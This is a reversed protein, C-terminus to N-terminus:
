GTPGFRETRVRDEPHGQEVLATAVAEVFGTPGCVFVEPAEDAAIALRQVDAATLRRGAGGDPTRRSCHLDVRVGDRELAALEDRYYVRDPDTVGYLLRFPRTSGTRERTRLMAMLPAVGSGGAILQVPATGTDPRWVLWGGVPGRVEVADGIALDRVLYPSVEGDAFEEVTIQVPRAGAASSLSYSRQATYGDEATLRVDVHQGALAPGLDPADLLLTRATATERVEGVLAAHVWRNPDPM